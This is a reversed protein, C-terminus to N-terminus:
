GEDEWEIGYDEESPEELFDWNLVMKKGKPVDPDKGKTIVFSEDQVIEMMIEGPKSKGSLIGVDILHEILQSFKKGVEEAGVMGMTENFSKGICISGSPIRAFSADGRLHANRWAGNLCFGITFDMDLAVVKMKHLGSPM